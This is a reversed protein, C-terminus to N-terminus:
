VAHPSDAVDIPGSLLHTLWEALEAGVEADEPVRGVVRLQGGRLEAQLREMRTRMTALFEALESEDLPRSILQVEGGYRERRMTLLLGDVAKFLRDSAFARRLQGRSNFHYVPDQDLFLSVAGTRRFGAFIQHGNPSRFEIRRVFATADRLLDEREYEERAM